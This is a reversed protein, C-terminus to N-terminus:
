GKGTMVIAPNKTANGAVPADLGLGTAKEFEAAWVPDGYFVLAGQGNDGTAYFREKEGAQELLSNFIGLVEGDIWDYYMDMQWVRTQGQWELMVEVTGTGKEWDVADTNERINAVDDLIGGKALARMGELVEIYDTGIDWGEFDFWFVEDSYGTVKWNEDYSPAGLETLLWTYPYGEVWIGMGGELSERAADVTKQPVTFGLSALVEVQRDLPVYDPYDAPNWEEEWEPVSGYGEQLRAQAERRADRVALLANAALYGAIVLVLLAYFIWGPMYKMRKGPIVPIRRDACWQRLTEERGDSEPCMRLVPLFHRKDKQFFYFGGKTEVLSHLTGAPLVTRNEGPRKVRVDDRTLMVQWEGCVDNQLLGRRLQRRIKKEPDVKRNKCLFLWVLLVILCVALLVRGMDPFLWGLVGALVLIAASVIGFVPKKDGKELLTGARIVGTVDTLIGAWKEEDMEFSLHLYQTEEWGPAVDAETKPHRVPNRISALFDEREQQDAFVRLPMPYWVPQRKAQYYGLLLLHRTLRIRTITSLPVEGYVESEVKLMGDEVWMCRMKECLNKKLANYNYGLLAAVVLVLFALLILGYQWFWICELVVIILVPLWSYSRLRQQEWFSKLCFELNEQKTLCFSYKKM